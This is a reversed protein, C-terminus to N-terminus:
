IEVRCIREVLYLSVITVGICLSMILIGTLNNYLVAIYDPSSLKLFAVILFPMIGIIRGETKRQSTALRINNEIEIKDSIIKAAGDVASVINGGTEKCNKYVKAFDCIDELGSREGLNELLVYDLDNAEEISNDIAELERVMLSDLGYVQRLGNLSEKIAKSMNRGLAFSSSILYLFDKFEMLLQNRRKEILLKKYYREGFIILPLFIVLAIISDYMLWSIALAVLLMLGYYKLREERSFKYDNYDM